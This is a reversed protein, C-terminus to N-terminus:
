SWNEVRLGPVRRFHRENNTVLTLDLALAHAAIATDFYGIPQGREALDAAVTAYRTACAADFSAVAINRIFADIWRHMRASERRNAGFRLEALTLASICLEAPDHERIRTEANGARKSAYSVIDTDLM